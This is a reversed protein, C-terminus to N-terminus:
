PEPHGQLGVAPRDQMNFKCCLYVRTFLGGGAWNQGECLVSFHVTGSAFVGPEQRQRRPPVSSFFGDLHPQGLHIIQM